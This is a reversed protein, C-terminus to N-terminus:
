SIYKKIFGEYIYKNFLNIICNIAEIKMGNPLSIVVIIIALYITMLLNFVKNIKNSAITEEKEDKSLISIIYITYPILLFLPFAYVLNNEEYGLLFTGALWILHIFVISIFSYLKIWIKNNLQDYLKLKFKKFDSKVLYIIFFAIILSLFYLININM